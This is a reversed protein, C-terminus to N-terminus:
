QRAWQMVVSCANLAASWEIADSELGQRFEDFSKQSADAAREPSPTQLVGGGAPNAQNPCSPIRVRVPHAAIDSLAQTDQAHQEELKSINKANEVSAAAVDKSDSDKQWSIGAEKGYAYVLTYSIAIAILVIIALMAKYQITM